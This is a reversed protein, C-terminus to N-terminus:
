HKEVQKKTLLALLEKYGSLPLCDNCNWKQQIKVVEPHSWDWGLSLLLYECGSRLDLFRALSVYVFGDIHRRRTYPEGIYSLGVRSLWSVVRPHSWDWGLDQLFRQCLNMASSRTNTTM